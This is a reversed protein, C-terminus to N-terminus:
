PVSAAAYKRGVDGGVVDAGCCSEAMGKHDDIIMAIDSTMVIILVSNMMQSLIRGMKWLHLVLTCSSPSWVSTYQESYLSELWICIFSMVMAWVKSHMDDFGLWGILSMMALVFPKHANRLMLQRSRCSYAFSVRIMKGRLNWRGSMRYRAARCGSRTVGDLDGQNLTFVVPDDCTPGSLVGKLSM